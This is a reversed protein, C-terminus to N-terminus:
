QNSRPPLPVIGLRLAQVVAQTTDSAGLKARINRVHSRVTYFSLGMECAISRNDTPGGSTMLELLQRERRTIHPTLPQTSQDVTQKSEQESSMLKSLDQSLCCGPGVVIEEARPDWDLVRGKRAEAAKAIDNRIQSSAQRLEQDSPRRIKSEPEPM